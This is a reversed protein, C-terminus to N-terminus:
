IGAQGPIQGLIFDAREQVPLRPVEVLRYGLKPYVEALAEFSAVAERFDQVREEDGRYIEEWPPLIFVTESYGFIEVAKRLHGPVGLGSMECYGVLELIGRDFFVPAEVGAVQDYAHISRSLMLEIYKARDGTHMADGGIRKQERIIQRGAEDVCIFGRRRLAEILTTKGAGPGGTLIHFNKRAIRM